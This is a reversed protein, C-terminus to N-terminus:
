RFIARSPFSGVTMVTAIARPYHRLKFLTRADISSQRECGRAGKAVSGAHRFMGLAGAVRVLQRLQNDIDCRAGHGLFTRRWGSGRLLEGPRPPQLAAPCPSVRQRASALAAVPFQGSPRGFASSETFLLSPNVEHNVLSPTARCGLSRLPSKISAFGLLPFSM